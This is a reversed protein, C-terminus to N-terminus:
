HKKRKAALLVAGAAATTLLLSAAPIGASGTKPNSSKSGNNEQGNTASGNTDSTKTSYLIKVSCLNVDYNNQDLEPIEIKLYNSGEPLSTATYLYDVWDTNGATTGLRKVVSNVQTWSDDEGTKSTYFLLSFTSAYITPDLDSDVEFGLMNDAKYIIYSPGTIEQRMYLQGDKLKVSTGPHNTMNEKELSLKFPPEFNDVLLAQDSGATLLVTEPKCALSVMTLATQYNGAATNTFELKLYSTGAPISASNTVNYRKYDGTRTPDATKTVTAEDITIGDKSVYAKLVPATSDENSIYTYKFRQMGDARYIAYGKSRGETMHVCSYNAGLYDRNSFVSSDFVINSINNMKTLLDTSDSKDIQDTLITEGDEATLPEYSVVDQIAPTKVSVTNIAPYWETTDNGPRVIKLYKYRKALVDGTSIEYQKVYGSMRVNDNLITPAQMTIQDYTTGNASMYFKFVSTNDLDTTSVFSIKAYSMAQTTQFTVEANKKNLVGDNDPRKGSLTGAADGTVWAQEKMGGSVMQEGSDLSVSSLAAGGGRGLFVETILPFYATDANGKRIIKLYKYGASAVDPSTFARQEVYTSLAPNSHFGNQVFTPAPMTVTTYTNGDTSMQFEFVSEGPIDLTSVYTMKFQGIGGNDHFIIQADKQSLDGGANAPRIGHLVAAEGVDWAKDVMGSVNAIDYVQQSIASDFSLETWNADDAAMGPIPYAATTIVAFALTCALGIVKMRAM